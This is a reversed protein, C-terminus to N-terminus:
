VVELLADGGEHALRTGSVAAIEARVHRGRRRAGASPGAGAPTRDVRVRAVVEAHDRTRLIPASGDM